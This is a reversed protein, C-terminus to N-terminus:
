CHVIKHVDSRTGRPCIVLLPHVIKAVDQLAVSVVPLLNFSKKGFSALGSRTEDAVFGHLVELICLMVDAFAVDIGKDWSVRPM